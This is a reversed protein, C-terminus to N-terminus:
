SGLGGTGIGIGINFSAVTLTFYQIAPFYVRIANLGSYQSAGSCAQAPVPSLHLTRGVPHPFGTSNLSAFTSNWYTSWACAYDTTFNLYVPTGALGPYTQSSDFSVYVQETGPTVASTGNGYSAFYTLSLSAQTGSYNAVISPPFLILQSVSSSSQQQIVAGNQLIYTIPVFYRDGLNDTLGGTTTLNQSFRSSTGQLFFTFNTYLSPNEFFNLVGDTPQAFVPVSSSQTTVPDSVAFGSRGSLYLSSMTNLINGFQNAVTVSYTEENDTMWLPLYDTLFIGFISLFVLLALLTGVVAAVGRRGHRLRRIYRSRRREKYGM